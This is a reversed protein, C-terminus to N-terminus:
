VHARGIKTPGADEQRLSCILTREEVRAVDDPSSRCYYSNPHKSPNLRILTGKEVMQACLADYEQQSGDCWYIRDPRCLASTEAVWTKLKENRTPEM